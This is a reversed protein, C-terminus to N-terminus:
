PTASDTTRLTSSAAPTTPSSRVALSQSTLCVSPPKNPRTAKRCVWASRKCSPWVWPANSIMAVRSSVSECSAEISVVPVASPATAKAAKIAEVARDYTGTQRALFDTQLDAKAVYRGIRITTATVGPASAGTAVQQVNVCPPANVLPIAVRGTGTDCHEQWTYKGTDGAAKADNYAALILDELMTVDAGDVAGAGIAKPDIAVRRMDGKGTLVIRVLSGAAAGEIETSALLEQMETMKAQMAQAQKLMNGLNKM